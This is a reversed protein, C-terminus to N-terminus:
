FVVGSIWMGVSITENKIKEGDFPFSQVYTYLNLSRHISFTPGVTMATPWRRFYNWDNRVFQQFNLDLGGRM